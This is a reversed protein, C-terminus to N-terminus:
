KEPKNVVLDVTIDVVVNNFRKTAEIVEAETIKGAKLQSLWPESLGQSITVPTFDVDLYLGLPTNAAKTQKWERNVAKSYLTFSAPMFSRVHTPDALFDDHRPHPVLIHVKAGHKCVRYLEKIVGYFVATTEGLHELVHSMLVEDVSSDEWPWPFVELDWKVDPNGFKDVNVFGPQPDQGAGLNLKLGGPLPSHSQM